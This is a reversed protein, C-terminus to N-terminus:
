ISCEANSLLEELRGELEGSNLFISTELEFVFLSPKKQLDQQYSQKGQSCKYGLSCSMIMPTQFVSLSRPHNKDTAKNLIVINLSLHFSIQIEPSVSTAERSERGSWFVSHIHGQM